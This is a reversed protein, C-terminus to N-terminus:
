RPAKGDACGINPVLNPGSGNTVDEPSVVLAGRPSAANFGRSGFKFVSVSWAFFKQVFPECRVVKATVRDLRPLQGQLATFAAELSSATPALDRALSRLSPLAPAVAGLAPALDAALRDLAKLGGPLARATPRLATLAPRVDDLTTDLEGFSSRLQALTPPLETLTRDLEQRRAGLASFTTSAKAVLGRVATDRRALEGTIQSASTVLRRTARDRRTIARGVRDSAQVFPVLQLFASRLQAGRDPLGISLEDLAQELRDRVDVTFANLVEAVDVPTRTRGADLVQDRLGGADPTGPDLVDLYMDNLATQPRLRLTANRYLPRTGKRKIEATLVAREGALDAKTIRGVVIGAWRVENKGPVVSKADDVAVRITTRDALPSGGSLLSVLLITSLLAGLVGAAVVVPAKGARRLQVRAAHIAHGRNM